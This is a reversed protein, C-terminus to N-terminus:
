FTVTNTLLPGFEFRSLEDLTSMAATEEPSFITFTSSDPVYCYFVTGRPGSSM